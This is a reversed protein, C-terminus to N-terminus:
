AGAGGIDTRICAYAYPLVKLEYPMPCLEYSMPCLAYPTPCLAYPTPCLAYPLVKLELLLSHEEDDAEGGRM